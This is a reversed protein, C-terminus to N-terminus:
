HPWSKGGPGRKHERRQQNQKKKKQRERELRTMERQIWFPTGTDFTGSPSLPRYDGSFLGRHGDERPPQRRPYWPPPTNWPPPTTVGDRDRERERQREKVEKRREKERSDKGEKNYKQFRYGGRTKGPQINIETKLM